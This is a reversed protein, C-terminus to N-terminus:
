RTQGKVIMVTFKQECIIVEGGSQSKTRLGGVPERQGLKVHITTSYCSASSVPLDDVKKAVVFALDLRVLFGASDLGIVKARTELTRDGFKAQASREQGREVDFELSAVVTAPAPWFRNKAYERTQFQVEMRLGTTLFDGGFVAFCIASWGCFSLM